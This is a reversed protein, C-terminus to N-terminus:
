TTQQQQQQRCSRASKRATRLKQLVRKVSEVVLSAGPIRHILYVVIDRPTLGKLGIFSRTLADFRAQRGFDVTVPSPHDLFRHLEVTLGTHVTTFDLQSYGTVALVKQNDLVRNFMRDYNVQYFNFGGGLANIYDRTEVERVETDLVEQYIGAIYRWTHHEATVVNFDEGLANPNGALRTVLQAVDGAWTLTTEKDLMPRPVAVPVKRQSRWGVMDAELTGLQFRGTSYTIGPRVITWNRADSARLVDEQRAKALAYEDTRLYTHDRSVDLLRPSNETLVPADAFVRYSSVFFYQETGALLTQLRRTFDDTGYVMFDVLVDYHHHTLLATIFRDDHADGTTFHIDATESSRRGRTTVDVTFGAAALAPALYIGMAGTGGLLLARKSM